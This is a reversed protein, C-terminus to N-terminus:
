FCLAAARKCPADASRMLCTAGWWVGGRVQLFGQSPADLMYDSRHVGLAVEPRGASALAARRARSGRLVGLLRRTFDDLRHAAPTPSAATSPTLASVHLGRPVGPLQLTFCSWGARGAGQREDNQVGRGQQARPLPPSGAPGCFPESPLWGEGGEHV